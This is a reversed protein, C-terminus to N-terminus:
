DVIRGNVSTIVGFDVGDGVFRFRVVDGCDYEDGRELIRSDDAVYDDLLPIVQEAGDSFILGLEDCDFDFVIVPDDPYVLGTSLSEAPALRAWFGSDDDFRINPDVPFSTDNILEVQITNLSPLLIGAEPCGGTVLLLYGTLAASFLICRYRM